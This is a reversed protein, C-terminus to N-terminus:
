KIKHKLYQRVVERDDFPMVKDKIIQYREHGKGAILVIDRKKALRLSAFIAKKRNPIVMYNNKKIGKLIDKIIDRPEENRPNDSTIVVFDALETAIEGMKPRKERDRNGGCGFTVIIRKKCIERLCLIVKKLADPSHAYDVFVTYDFFGDIRELRGPPAKFKKIVEKILNLEIGESIAFSVAALINYVNHIGILVTEIDIKGKATSLIFRMGNIDIRIDYAFIDCAKDLGYTSVESHTLAKIRKAYRDDSNIISMSRPKLNKFLKAKAQFYNEMNHHYDLHDQTLNTFIAYAFDINSVRDQELAHSSVEMIVYDIGEKYVRALLSQLEIPPPTTNQAPIVRNKFRYNITGIVAPKKRKEKLLAEILYTVTTKGNTGTIGIVKIKRSPNGYFEAALDALSKRSDEVTVWSLGKPMLKGPLDQSVILRAGKRVAENIFKDGDLHTGKIAVFIFDDKVAKSNCAIGQVTFDALSIVRPKDLIDVM